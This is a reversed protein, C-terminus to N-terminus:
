FFELRAEGTSRDEDGGDGCFLKGDATQSYHISWANLEVHHWTREGTEVNYGGTFHNM